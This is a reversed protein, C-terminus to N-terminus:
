KGSRRRRILLGVVGVGLAAYASPEPTPYADVAFAGLYGVSGASYGTFSAVYSVTYTGVLSPSFSNDWISPTLPTYIPLIAPSTATSSYLDQIFTAGQYLRVTLSLQGDIAFGDVETVDLASLGASDSVNFAGSDSVTGAGIVSQHLHPPTAKLQNSVAPNFTFQSGYNSFTITAQSPVALAALGALVV